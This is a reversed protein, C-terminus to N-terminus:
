RKILLKNSNILILGWIVSLHRYCRSSLSREGSFFLVLITNKDSYYTEKKRQADRANNWNMLTMPNSITKETV